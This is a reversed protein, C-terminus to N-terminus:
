RDNDAAMMGNASGSGSIGAIDIYPKKAINEIREVRRHWIGIAGDQWAVVRGDCHLHNLRSRLKNPQAFCM